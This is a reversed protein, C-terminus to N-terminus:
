QGLLSQLLEKKKEPPLLTYDVEQALLDPAAVGMLAATAATKRFPDFAAFRSRILDPNETAYTDSIIKDSAQTNDSVNRINVGGYGRENAQEIAQRNVRMWNKGEAEYPMLESSRMMLPYITSGESAIEGKLFSKYLDKSQNQAANIQERLSDMENFKGSQYAANYQESLGQIKANIEQAQPTLAFQNTDLSYGRAVEPSSTAWINQDFANSTSKGAMSPDFALISPDKSGHFANIDFGMAKARDMATNNAPLGLGGQEVPLAARQQALRMAEEQPYSSKLTSAKIADQFPAQYKAPMEFDILAKEVSGSEELADISHKLLQRAEDSRFKGELAKKMAPIDYKNALNEIVAVPVNKEGLLRLAELRHQGELVNGLDDVIIRSVYGDPSSIKDALEKVRKAENPDTMRVGGNLQEIPLTKNGGLKAFDFTSDMVEYVDDTPPKVKLKKGVDKISAGVPLGKTAKAAGAAMPLLTMAAEVTEPRVQTTMGRGTTLPEGYSMRELTQQVAPVGLLNMLMEVPPNEYGFPKAGFQQAQKLRDALLGLIQNQRPTARIGDAM